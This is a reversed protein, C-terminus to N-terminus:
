SSITPYSKLYNSIPNNNIPNLLKITKSLKWPNKRSSSKSSTTEILKEFTLLTSPHKLTFIPLQMKPTPLTLKTSKSPDILTHIPVRFIHTTIKPHNLILLRTLM